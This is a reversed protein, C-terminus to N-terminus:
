GSGAGGLPGLGGTGSLTTFKGSLTIRFVSGNLTTGYLNGDTAQVLAGMPNAGDACASESCFSYISTLAGTPSMRFISGDGNVGGESTTGYFNGDTAHILGATSNAGDTGNFNVLTILSQASLQPASISVCLAALMLSIECKGIISM